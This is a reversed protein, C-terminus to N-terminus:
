FREQLNVEFKKALETRHESMTKISEELQVKENSLQEKETLLTVKEQYRAAKAQELENIKREAETKKSEATEKIKQIVEDLTGPVPEKLIKAFELLPKLQAIERDNENMLDELKKNADALLVETASIASNLRLLAAKKEAGQGFIGDKKNDWDRKENKQEQLNKEQRDREDRLSQSDEYFTNGTREWRSGQRDVTITIKTARAEPSSTAEAGKIGELASRAEEAQAEYSSAGQEDRSETRELEWLAVKINGEQQINPDEGLRGDIEKIRDTHTRITEPIKHKLEAYEGYEEVISKAGERLAPSNKIEALVQERIEEYEEDTIRYPAGTEEYKQKRLTAQKEDILVGIGDSFQTDRNMRAVIAEVLADTDLELDSSEGNHIDDIRRLYENREKRTVSNISTQIATELPVNTRVFRAEEGHRKELVALENSFIRGRESYIQGLGLKRAREAVVGEKIQKTLEPDAEPNELALTEIEKQLEQDRSRLLDDLQGPLLTEPNDVGLEAKVFERLNEAEQLTGKLESRKSQYKQVDEDKADNEKVIGRVTISEDGVEKVLDRLNKREEKLAGKQQKATDTLKLDAGKLSAMRARMEQMEDLKEKVQKLSDKKVAEQAVAQQEQEAATEQQKQAARERLSAM